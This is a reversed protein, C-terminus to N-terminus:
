RVKESWNKQQRALYFLDVDHKIKLINFIKETEVRNIAQKAYHVFESTLENNTNAVHLILKNM